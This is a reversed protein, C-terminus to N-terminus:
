EMPTVKYGLQFEMELSKICKTFFKRHSAMKMRAVLRKPLVRSDDM